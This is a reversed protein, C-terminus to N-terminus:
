SCSLRGVLPHLLAVAPLYTELATRTVHEHRWCPLAPFALSPEADAVEVTYTAEGAVHTSATATTHAKARGAASALLRRTISRSANRNLKYSAGPSM